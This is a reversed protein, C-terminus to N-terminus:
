SLTCSISGNKNKHTHSSDFDLERSLFDDSNAFPPPPCSGSLTLSIEYVFCRVLVGVLLLNLRWSSM